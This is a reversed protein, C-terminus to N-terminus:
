GKKKDDKPKGCGKKEMELVELYPNNKKEVHFKFTHVVKTGAPMKYSTDLRARRELCM